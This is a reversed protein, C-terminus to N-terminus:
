KAQVVGSYSAGWSKSGSVSRCNFTKSLRCFFIALRGVLKLNKPTIAGSKQIMCSWFIASGYLLAAVRYSHFLIRLSICLLTLEQVLPNEQPLAVSPREWVEPSGVLVPVEMYSVVRVHKHPVHLFLLIEGQCLLSSWVLSRRRRSIGPLQCFGIGSRPQDPLLDVSWLQAHVNIM